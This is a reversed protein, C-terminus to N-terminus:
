IVMGGDVRIVEGTIYGAKDSALFGALAAVEDPTGARGLPISDSMAAIQNESLTATMDTLIYGPAIANCTVGRKALERALTKTFGIVGAKAAAYNAQGAQGTLGVVSTINIIRGNPSGILSRLLHHTMAYTGKLNVDVVADFDAESM